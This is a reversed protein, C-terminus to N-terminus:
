PLLHTPLHPLLTFLATILLAVIFLLSFYRQIKLTERMVLHLSPPMDARTIGTLAVVLIPLTWLTILILHPTGRPIGLAVVVAYAGLMLLIYLVRSLRLGMLSALTRKNAQADSEVDRMNNVHVAAAALLGLPLSYLLVNMLLSRAPVGGMEVFYAGLTLLPGYICFSVVEGLALSSLSRATASFFYACLLGIIGFVFVFFGGTIAVVAGVVAGVALLVLGLNLVNTPKILGQQILGGPGLPNSTDIGKIYDYYDNIVNAGIQLALTALLTAIFHLLHFHGFPTTTSVSQTWALVSGLVVPLLALAVYAPRIGEWWLQLWEGISRRYEAPQVVLPTPLRVSRSAAVSRVAVEPELTSLTQLSGLPITPVEEAQVSAATVIHSSAIPKGSAVVPKGKTPSVTITTENNEETSDNSQM